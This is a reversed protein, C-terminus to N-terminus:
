TVHSMHTYCYGVDLEAQIYVLQCSFVCGGDYWMTTTIWLTSNILLYIGLLTKIYPRPPMSIHSSLTRLSASPEASAFTGFFDFSFNVANRKRSCTTTIQTKWCCCRVIVCMCVCISWKCWHERSLASFTFVAMALSSHLHTSMEKLWTNLWYTYLSSLDAICLLGSRRNGEWGYPM